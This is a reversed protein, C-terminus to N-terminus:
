HLKLRGTWITQVIQSFKQNQFINVASISWLCLKFTVDQFNEKKSSRKRCWKHIQLM